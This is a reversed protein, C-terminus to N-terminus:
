PTEEIRTIGGKVLYATGDTHHHKGQPAPLSFEPQASNPLQLTLRAIEKECWAVTEEDRNEWAQARDNEIRIIETYLFYLGLEDKPMRRVAEDREREASALQRRKQEAKRFALIALNTHINM